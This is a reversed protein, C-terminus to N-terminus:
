DAPTQCYSKLQAADQDKSARFTPALWRCLLNKQLPRYDLFGFQVPNTSPGSLLALGDMPAVDLFRFGGLRKDIGIRLIPDSSDDPLQWLRGSADWAFTDPGRQFVSSMAEVFYGFDRVIKGDLELLALSQSSGFKPSSSLLLRSSSDDAFRLLTFKPGPLNMREGLLAKAKLDWFGIQDSSLRVFWLKSDRSFPQYAVTLRNFIVPEQRQLVGDLTWLSQDKNGIFAVFGQDPSIAAANASVDYNQFTWGNADARGVMAGLMKTKIRHVVVVDPLNADVVIKAKDWSTDRQMQWEQPKSTDNLWLRGAKDLLWLRTGSSAIQAVEVGEPLPWQKAGTLGDAQVSVVNRNSSVTLVEGAPTLSPSVESDFGPIGPNATKEIEIISTRRAKDVSIVRKQGSLFQAFLLQEQRYDDSYLIPPFLFPDMFSEVDFNEELTYINIKSHGQDGDWAVLLERGSDSLRLIPPQAVDDIGWQTYAGTGAKLDWVFFNIDGKRSILVWNRSPEYRLEVIEDLPISEPDFYETKKLFASAKLIEPDQALDKWILMECKLPGENYSPDAKLGFLIGLGPVAQVKSFFCRPMWTHAFLSEGQEGDFATFGGQSTAILRRNSSDYALSLLPVSVTQLWLKQASGGNLRYAALEYVGRVFLIKSDADWVIQKISAGSALQPLVATQDGWQLRGDNMVIIAKGSPRDLEFDAVESLQSDLEGSTKRLSLYGLQDLSYIITEDPNIAVKKLTSKLDTFSLVLSLHRTIETYAMGLLPSLIQREYPLTLGSFISYSKLLSMASELYLGDAYLSRASQLRAKVEDITNRHVVALPESTKVPSANGASDTAYSRLLYIGQDPIAIPGSAVRFDSCPAEGKQYLCYQVSSALNDMAELNITQNPSLERFSADPDGLKPLSLDWPLLQPAQRDIVLKCQATKPAAGHFYFEFLATTALELQYEGESLLSPLVLDAPGDSGLTVIGSAVTQLSADRLRYQTQYIDLAEQTSSSATITAKLGQIASDSCNASYALGKFQASQRNLEVFSLGIKPESSLTLSQASRKNQSRVYVEGKASEPLILCGKSSHNLSSFQNNQWLLAESREDSPVLLQSEALDAVDDGCALKKDVVRNHISGCASLLSLGLGLQVLRNFPAIM